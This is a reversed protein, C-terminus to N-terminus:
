LSDFALHEVEKFQDHESGISGASGASPKIDSATM